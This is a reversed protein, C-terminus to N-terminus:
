RYMWSGDPMQHWIGQRYEDGFWYFEETLAGEFLGNSTDHDASPTNDSEQYIPEEYLTEEYYPDGYTEANYVMRKAYEIFESHTGFGNYAQFGYVYALNNWYELDDDISNDNQIGSSDEPKKVTDSVESDDTQMSTSTEPINNTDVSWAGSDMMFTLVGANQVDYYISGVAKMGPAIDESFYDTSLHETAIRDGDYLEFDHANISLREETQNDVSIDFRIMTGTIENFEYEGPETIEVSDLTIIVGSDLIIPDGIKMADDDYAERLENLTISLEQIQTQAKDKLSTVDQAYVSLPVGFIILTTLIALKKNM